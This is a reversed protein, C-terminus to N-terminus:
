CSLVTHMRATRRQNDQENMKKDINQVRQEISSISVYVLQCIDWESM